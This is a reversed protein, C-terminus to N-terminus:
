CMSHYEANQNNDSLCTRKIDRIMKSIQRAINHQIPQHTTQLRTMCKTVPELIGVIMSNFGWNVDTIGRSMELLASQKSKVTNKKGTNTADADFLDSWMINEDDSARSDDDSEDINEQIDHKDAGEGYGHFILDNKLTILGPWAGIAATCSTYIGTWRSPCYTKTYTLKWGHTDYLDGFQDVLNNLNDM